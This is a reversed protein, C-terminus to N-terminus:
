AEDEEAAELARSRVELWVGRIISLLALAMFAAAIPRTLFILPSGQSLLLSQQLSTELMQALVTALVMPAM